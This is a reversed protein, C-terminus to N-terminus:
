TLSFRPCEKQFHNHIETKKVSYSMSIQYLEPIKCEVNGDGRSASRGGTATANSRTSVKRGHCFVCPMCVPPNNPMSLFLLALLASCRKM